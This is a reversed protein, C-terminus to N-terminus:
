CRAIHSIFFAALERFLDSPVGVAHDEKVLDFFRVPVDEIDQQLDEIFAMYCVGLPMLDIELVSHDDHRGIDAGLPDYLGLGKAKRVFGGRFLGVLFHPGSDHFFDFFHETRLKDVTYVLDEDEMGQAVILHVPDARKQALVQDAARVLLKANLELHRGRESLM